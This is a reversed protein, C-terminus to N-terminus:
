NDIDMNQEYMKLKDPISVDASLFFNEYLSKGFDEERKIM